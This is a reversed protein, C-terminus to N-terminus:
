EKSKADEDCAKLAENRMGLLRYVRDVRYRSLLAVRFLHSVVCGVFLAFTRTHAVFSGSLALSLPVRACLPSFRALPVVDVVISASASPKSSPKPAALSCRAM